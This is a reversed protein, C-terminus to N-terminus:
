NLPTLSYEILAVMIKKIKPTGLRLFMDLTISQEQLDLTMRKHGFYSIYIVGVNIEGYEDTKYQSKLDEWQRVRVKDGVKYKM